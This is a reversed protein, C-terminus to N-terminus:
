KGVKLLLLMAFARLYSAPAVSAFFFHIVFGSWFNTPQQVSPGAAQYHIYFLSLSLRKYM